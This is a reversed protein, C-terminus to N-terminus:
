NWSFKMTKNSFNNQIKRFISIVTEPQQLSSRNAIKLPRAEVKNRLDTIFSNGIEAHIMEKIVKKAISEVDIKANSTIEGMVLLFDTTVSCECAVRSNEDVALLSDLIADSVTFTLKSAVKAM